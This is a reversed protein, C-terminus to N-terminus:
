VGVGKASEQQSTHAGTSSRWKRRCCRYPRTHPFPCSPVIPLLPPPCATSLPHMDDLCIHPAHWQRAVDLCHHSQSTNPPLPPPHHCHHPYVDGRGDGLVRAWFWGRLSVDREGGEGRDVHTHTPPPSCQWSCSMAAIHVSLYRSCSPSACTHGRDVDKSHQSQTDEKRHRAFVQVLFASCRKQPAPWTSRGQPAGNETGPLVRSGNGCAEGTTVWVHEYCGRTCPSFRGGDHM